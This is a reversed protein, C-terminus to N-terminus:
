PEPDFTAAIQEFVPLSEEWDSANVQWWLAHGKGDAVLLRDLVHLETESFYTFELEAADGVPM